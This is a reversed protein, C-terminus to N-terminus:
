NHHFQRKLTRRLTVPATSRPQRSLTKLPHSYGEATQCGSTLIGQTHSRFLPLTQTDDKTARRCGGAPLRAKGSERGTGRKGLEKGALQNMSEWSAGRPGRVATRVEKPTTPVSSNDPSEDRVIDARVQSSDPQNM